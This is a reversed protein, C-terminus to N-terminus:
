ESWARQLTPDSFVAAFVELMADSLVENCNTNSFKKGYRTADGMQSTPPRLVEGGRELSYELRVTANYTAGVAQNTELVSVELVKVRLVRSAGPDLEIGWRTASERLHQDVFEAVSSTATLAQLHDDDDTRTGIKAPDEQGRVDEFHLAVPQDLMAGSVKPVAGAVTQQPRFELDIRPKNKKASAASAAALLVALVVLTSRTTKVANEQLKGQL